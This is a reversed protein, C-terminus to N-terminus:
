MQQVHEEDLIEQVQLLKVIRGSQHIRRARREHRAPRKRKEDPTGV